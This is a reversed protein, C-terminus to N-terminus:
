RSKGELEKNTLRYIKEEQLKIIMEKDKLWGEIIKIRAKLQEFEEKKVVPQTLPQNYFILESVTVNLAKAFQEILEFTLKNGRKELRPYNTREIGLQDAVESQTLKKAKRIAKINESIDM